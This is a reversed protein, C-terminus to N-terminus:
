VRDSSVQGDGMSPSLACHSYSDFVVLDKYSLACHSHIGFTVLDKYSLVYPSYIDCLVLANYSLVCSSYLWVSYSRQWVTCRCLFQSNWVSCSRTLFYLLVTFTMYLLIKILFCMPVTFAVCFLIKILSYVSVTFTV